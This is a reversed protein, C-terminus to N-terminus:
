NKKNYCSLCLGDQRYYHQLALPNDTDLVFECNECELHWSDHYTKHIQGGETLSLHAAIGYFRLAAMLKDFLAPNMVLQDSLKGTTRTPIKLCASYLGLIMDHQDSEKPLAEIRSRVYTHIDDWTKETAPKETQAIVLAYRAEKLLALGDRVYRAGVKHVAQIKREVPDTMVIVNGDKDMRKKESCRGVYTSVYDRVNDIFSRIFAARYHDILSLHTDATLRSISFPYGFLYEFRTKWLYADIKITPDEYLMALISQAEATVANIDDIHGGQAGTDICSEMPALQVGRHRRASVSWLSRANVNAGVCAQSGANNDVAKITDRLTYPRVDSQEKEVKSSPLGTYIIDGDRVAESLRKPWLEPDSSVEPFLLHDGNSFKEVPFWDGEVYDFTSYEGLDNPSRMIVIKRLSNITRWYGVFFDDLDMGGHSEYMEVWDEDNVVLVEHEPLWRISGRQVEVDSGACAAMSQSIVQCRVACPIPIRIRRPDTTHIMSLLNNAMQEFLWPSMRLSMGSMVWARANWKTLTILDNEDYKRQSDAYFSPGSMNYWQELLKDNKLDELSDLLMRKIWARIFQPDWLAPNNGISQVDGNAHFKASQPDLLVYTHECSVEYKIASRSCIIDVGMAECIDDSRIFAQGKLMGPADYLEDDHSLGVYHFRGFIRANFAKFKEAQNRFAHIKMDDATIIEGEVIPFELNELCENYLKRCIVFAGDLLREKMDEPLNAITDDDTYGDDDVLAVRLMRDPRSYLRFPRNLTKLRKFTKQFSKIDWGHDEIREAKSWGTIQVITITAADVYSYVTEPDRLVNALMTAHVKFNEKKPITSKLVQFHRDGAIDELIPIRYGGSTFQTTIVPAGAELAKPNVRDAMEVDTTHNIRVFGANDDTVFM